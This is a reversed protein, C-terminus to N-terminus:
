LLKNKIFEPIEGKFLSEIKEIYQKALNTDDNKLFQFANIYTDLLKNSINVGMINTLNSNYDISYLNELEDDIYEGNQKELQIIKTTKKDVFFNSLIIPSHTTIIFQLGPFTKRFRELVTQQLSPHLHLELEDILVLGDFSDTKGNLIYWRYAIDYVIHMLRQYGMPLSEENYMGENFSNEKGFLFFLYEDKNTRRKKIDFLILEDPDFENVKSFFSMLIEKVFDFEDEFKRTESNNQKKILDLRNQLSILQTDIKADKNSNHSKISQLLEIDKTLEAITEIDHQIENLIFKTRLFWSPVISGDSNWLFYGADRPIIKSKTIIKNFSNVVANAYNKKHPYCDGYFGLLPLTSSKELHYKEFKKQADKYYTPHLKGKYKDKYFKWSLDTSDFTIDYKINTPWQFGDGNEIFTTDWDNLGEVKNTNNKILKNEGTNSFIFTMGKRLASLLSSKGTGNKGIIITCDSGFIFDNNQYCRYNQITVSKIKM